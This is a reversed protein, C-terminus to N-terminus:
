TALCAPIPCKRAAVTPSRAKAVRFDHAVARNGADRGRRRPQRGRCAGRSPRPRRSPRRPLPNSPPWGPWCSRSRSSPRPAPKANPKPEDRPRRAPKASPKPEDRPRPAAQREAEARGEAAARAQRETDREARVPTLDGLAVPLGTRADLVELRGARVRVFARAPPFLLRGDADPEMRVWTDGERHLGELTPPDDGRQRDVILYWEPGALLYQVVKTAVDNIRYDPSVVEVVFVPRVGEAVCDFSARFARPDRVGLVVSVDPSHHTFEPRGWFIGMDHVVLADPCDALLAKFSDRLLAVDDDHFNSIVARDGFGPHLLDELTLPVRDFDVVTGAADRIPVERYGYRHLREAPSLDPVEATATTM